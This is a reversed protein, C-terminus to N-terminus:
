WQGQHYIISPVSQHLHKKVTATATATALPLFPPCKVYQEMDTKTENFSVKNLFNVTRFEPWSNLGGSRSSLQRQDPSFLTNHHSCILKLNSIITFSLASHLFLGLPFHTNLFVPFYVHTTHLLRSRRHQRNCKSFPSSSQNLGCSNLITVFLTAKSM